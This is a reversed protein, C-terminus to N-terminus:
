GACALSQVPGAPIVAGAAAINGFATWAGSAYRTGEYIGTGDSAVLLVRFDGGAAVACVAPQYITGTASPAGPVRNFGNWVAPSSYRISHYLAGDSRATAVVQLDGNVGAAAAAMLAADPAVANFGNWPGTEYRIAHYLKADSYTPVTATLVVQLNRGVGAAAVSAVPGPIYAGYMPNFGNWTRTAYYRIAHYPAGHGMATVLVVHLDGNVNAASLSLFTDTEPVNAWSSVDNFGVWAGNLSRIAHFVHGVSGAGTASTTVLVHLDGNISTAAVLTVNAPVTLRTSLDDFGTWSGSASRSAYYLVGGSILLAHSQGGLFPTAGQEKLYQGIVSPKRGSFWASQIDARMWYAPNAERIYQGEIEVWPTRNRIAAAVDSRGLFAPEFERLYQGLVDSWRSQQLGAVIDPRGTGLWEALSLHAVPSTTIAPMPGTAATPSIGSVLSLVAVAIATGIFKFRNM